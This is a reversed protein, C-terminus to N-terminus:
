DVRLKADVLLMAVPLLLKAEDNRLYKVDVFDDSMSGFRCRDLADADKLITYAKWILDSGKRSSLKKRFYAQAEEDSRCHYTMLFEMVKDDKGSDKRWLEYSAAGHEGDRSLDDDRGMDHWAAARLLQKYVKCAEKKKDADKGDIRTIVGVRFLFCSLLAVRVSHAEDHDGEKDLRGMYTEQVYSLIDSACVENVATGDYGPVSHIVASTFDDMTYCGVSTMDLICEPFTIIESEGRDTIYEIVDEKKVKATYIRAEKGDYRWSAFFYAKGIDTTWSIAKNVPTSNTGAGRYITIIGPLDAMADQSAKEQRASRGSVIERLANPNREMLTAAGNDSFSYYSIFTDYLAPSPGDAKLIDCILWMSMNGSGESSTPALLTPYNKKRHAEEMEAIKKVIQDQLKETESAEDRKEDSAFPGTLIQRDYIFLRFAFGHSADYYMLESPYLISKTCIVHEPSIKPYTECWEDVTYGVMYGLSRLEEKKEETTVDKLWVVDKLSNQEAMIRYLENKNM